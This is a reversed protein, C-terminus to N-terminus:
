LVLWAIEALLVFAFVAAVVVATDRRENAILVLIAVAAVTVEVMVVPAVILAAFAADVSDESALIAMFTVAGSLFGIAAGSGVAFLNAGLAKM